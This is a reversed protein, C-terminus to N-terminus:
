RKGKKKAAVVKFASNAGVDGGAPSAVAPGKKAVESWGGANKGGDSYSGSTGGASGMAFGVSGSSSDPIVGKEALKRRRVFEEAFRRGDLTQSNAYVAESLIEPESPFQLLDRVFNDVNIGTNLGKSLASKAWKQLEDSANQTGGTASREAPKPRAVGSTAGGSVARLVGPATPTSAPTLPAKLKGGAGVTTWAGTPAVASKSSAVAPAKSALDAYRHGPTAANASTTAIAAASAQAAAVLRQKRIEEEKQIQALTKAKGGAQPTIVPTKGALAKAGWAAPGTSTPTAPSSGSAWNASSPLGPAPAVVSQAQSQREQEALVRRAAMAIEEKQAAKRAEVEQIEKLSPGKSSEAIEKAWPAMTASPTEISPTQSQPSATALADAVNQKNRQATPAPLPSASQPPPFPHPLSTDIRAWPSQQTQATMQAQTQQTPDAKEFQDILSASDNQKSALREKASTPAGRMSDGAVNRIQDNMETVASSVPFDIPLGQFAQGRTADPGQMQRFQNLRDSSAQEDRGADLNLANYQDQERQLRARDQLINAVQQQHAPDSQLQSLHQSIFSGQIPGQADRSVNGMNMRSMQSNMDGERGLSIESAMGGPGGGMHGPMRMHSDFFGPVSSPPQIPAQAPSQQYGSPSTISGFSPQSHLSHASSHHQLQHVSLPGGSMQMQKIIVQQQALHEKQRAMLYQEEQKRRELANQQEATLTTGFSPFSNAFPPQASGAQGTPSAVPISPGPNLQTTPPGHPIGIQPVLFPERSNGIRRILQALPEFDPDELKKVQLEALFFGAKYWDHMELGSWPGQINGQPDRYIWRMRDPMVMQRQQTIPISSSIGSSSEAEAAGVPKAISSAPTSSQAAASSLMPSQTSAPGSAQAFTGENPIGQGRNRDGNFLDELPGRGFQGPSDNDRGPPDRLNRSQADRLDGYDQDLKGSENMRMQEQMAQPFLSGMKSGRGITGQHGGFAGQQHPADGFAGFISDGYGGGFGPNARTPTGIAGPAASWGGTANLGGLGGFGALQPFGRSGASSTQSRDSPNGEYTANFMRGAPGMRNGGFQNALMDYAATDVEDPVAREGEPSQYPNTSTPSMPENPLQGSFQRSQPTQQQILSERRHMMDRFSLAEPKSAFSSFGVDEHMSNRDIGFASPNHRPPPSADDGGLAASGTQPRADSISYDEQDTGRQGRAGWSPGHGPGEGETEPLKELSSTSTKGTLSSSSEDVLDKSMLGKFRSEGRISGFGQRKEGPTQPQSAGMSFNGFAGMQPLGASQPVNSWPSAPGTLGATFPGTQTRKFSGFPSATDVSTEPKSEKLRDGFSTGIQVDKFDTRRRLLSPPPTSVQTEDRGAKAALPSNTPNSTSISESTDRRRMGPRVSSAPTSGPINGSGQSISSKRGNVGANPTGEKPNQIPAKLPSNVSSSFTEKEEENMEKLGLPEILGNTDWCVEPGYVEKQEDRRTWGETGHNNTAEPSWGGVFLDEVKAGGNQLDHQTRFLDLLQDKSYRGNVELGRSQSSSYNSNLHPPVYVGTSPTPPNASTYNDRQSALSARRFPQPAGNIRARSWDGSEGRTLGRISSTNEATGNSGGATSSPIQSPM